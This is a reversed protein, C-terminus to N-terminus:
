AKGEKGFREAEKLVLRLGEHLDSAMLGPASYREQVADGAAGHLFVGLPAADEAGMGQALLGGIVGSLVDGSGATAMGANGSLNLYVGAGPICTVTREDKLVCIVDNEAAFDAAAELLHSQLYSISKECLRSMEGLHPTVIVQARCKELLEIDRALLNLADADLLLTGRTGCLVKAVLAAATESTGIGPGCVVADAWALQDKLWADEAAGDYARVIAEPLKTQLMSRNEEPTVIQVLGCGCCYAAKACLYAAGAMGASGAIVLLKGFSGKNSHSERAPLRELDEREFAALKPPHGLFSHGDIGIEKVLVTKAYTNGPWLATGIKEFGFAITLDACFATGLVAGTDACIGSPLDLAIKMGSLGNMQALLAAYDGEISRSLGVGFVADIVGSYCRNNPIKELIRGGYALFIDAQRQNEATRGFSAPAAVVDVECGRQLLLRAVAYGDGGNNGNGCVILLRGRVAPTEWLEEVVSLAAREMLVLAPIQLTEITNKDYIRMEDGTVLYRM